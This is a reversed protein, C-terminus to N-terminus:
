LGSRFDMEDIHYDLIIEHKIAGKGDFGMFKMM